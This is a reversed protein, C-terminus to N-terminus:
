YGEEGTVTEEMARVVPSTAATARALFENAFHAAEGDPTRGMLDAWHLDANAAAEVEALVAFALRVRETDLVDEELSLLGGYGWSEGAVHFAELTLGRERVEEENIERESV